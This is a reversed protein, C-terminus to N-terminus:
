ASCKPSTELTVQIGTETVGEKDYILMLLQSLFCFLVSDCHMVAFLMIFDTQEFCCQLAAEKGTRGHLWKFMNHVSLTDAHSAYTCIVLHEWLLPCVPKYRCLHACFVSLFAECLDYHVKIIKERKWRQNHVMGTNGTSRSTQQPSLTSDMDWGQTDRYVFM